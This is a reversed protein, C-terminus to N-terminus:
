SRGRLRRLLRLANPSLQMDRRQQLQCQYILDHAKRSAFRRAGPPLYLKAVRINESPCVFWWRFPQETCTLRVSQDVPLGDVEFGLRVSAKARNQLDVEATITQELHFIGAKPRPIVISLISGQNLSGKGVVDGISIVFSNEVLGAPTESHARIVTLYARRGARPM